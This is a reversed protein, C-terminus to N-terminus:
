SGPRILWTGASLTENYVTINSNSSYPTLSVTAGTSANVATAAGVGPRASMVRGGNNPYGCAQQFLVGDSSKGSGTPFGVHTYYTDDHDAAGGKVLHRHSTAPSLVVTASPVPRTITANGQWQAYPTKIGPVTDIIRYRRYLDTVSKPQPSEWHNNILDYNYRMNAPSVTSNIDFGPAQSWNSGDGVDHYGEAGGNYTLTMVVSRIPKGHYITGGDVGSRWGLGSGGFDKGHVISRGALYTAVSGDMSTVTLSALTLQCPRAGQDYGKDSNRYLSSWAVRWCFTSDEGNIDFPITYTWIEDQQNPYRTLEHVFERSLAETGAKLNRMWLPAPQQANAAAPAVRGAQSGTIAQLWPRTWGPFGPAARGTQMLVGIRSLQSHWNAM